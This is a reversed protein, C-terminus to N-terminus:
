SQRLRSKGGAPVPPHWIEFKFDEILVLLNIKGHAAIAEDLKPLLTDYDEATVEGSIKFGICTDTSEPLLEFM